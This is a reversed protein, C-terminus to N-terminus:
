ADGTEELLRFTEDLVEGPARADILMRLIRARAPGMRRLCIRATRRLADDCRGAGYYAIGCLTAAERLTM